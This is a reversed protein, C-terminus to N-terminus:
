PRTRKLDETTRTLWRISRERDQEYFQIVHLVLAALVVSDEGAAYGAKFLEGFAVLFAYDTGQIRALDDRYGHRVFFLEMKRLYRLEDTADDDAERPYRAIFEELEAFDDFDLPLHPRVLTITSDKHWLVAEEDGHSFLVSRKTWTLGGEGDKAIEAKKKWRLKLAQGIKAEFPDAEMSRRERLVERAREVHRNADPSPEQERTITDILRELTDTHDHTGEQHESALEDLWDLENRQGVTKRHWRYWSWLFWGAGIVVVWGWEGLLHFAGAVSLVAVGTVVAAVSALSLCHIVIQPKMNRGGAADIGLSFYSSTGGFV